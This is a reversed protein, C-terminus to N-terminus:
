DTTAQPDSWSNSEFFCAGWMDIFTWVDYFGNPANCKGILVTHWSTWDTDGDNLFMEVSGDCVRLIGDEHLRRQDSVPEDLHLVGLGCLSGHDLPHGGLFIRTFPQITRHDLVVAFRMGVGDCVLYSNEESGSFLGRPTDCTLGMSSSLGRGASELPQFISHMTM